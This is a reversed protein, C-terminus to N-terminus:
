RAKNNEPYNANGYGDGRGLGKGSSLGVGYGYEEHYWPSIWGHGTILGPQSFGRQGSGQGYGDGRGNGWPRGTTCGRGDGKDFSGPEIVLIKVLNSM